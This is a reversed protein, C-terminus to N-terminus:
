SPKGVNARAARVAFRMAARPLKQARALTADLANVFWEVDRESLV